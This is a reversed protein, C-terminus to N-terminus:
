RVRHSRRSVALLNQTWRGGRVGLLHVGTLGIVAMVAPTILNDYGSVANAYHSFIFAIAGIHAPRM